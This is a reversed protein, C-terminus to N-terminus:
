FAYFHCCVCVCVCCVSVKIGVYDVPIIPNELTPLVSENLTEGVMVRTAVNILDVGITKSVFPFSRSARLNCEIVMVDNGKVLFQTNFPGSIEFAKAIKRTATKVKELAGQSITQTPLILTADGSHVGADEVHETIAHALVKGSKAVADVEVERAGLIFKTIVVPHEQSVQTAEELFRKMEEEGYAVNM